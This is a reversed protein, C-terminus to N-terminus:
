GDVVWCYVTKFKTIGGFILMEISQLNNFLNFIIDGRFLNVSYSESLLDIDGYYNNEIKHMVKNAIKSGAQILYDYHM